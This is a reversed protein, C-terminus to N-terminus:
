FKGKENEVIFHRKYEETCAIAQVNPNCKLQDKKTFLRITM